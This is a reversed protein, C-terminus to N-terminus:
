SIHLLATSVQRTTNSETGSRYLVCSIHSLSGKISFYQRLLYLDSSIHLLAASVQRASNFNMGSQFAQYRQIRM